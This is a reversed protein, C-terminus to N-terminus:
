KVPKWVACGRSTFQGDSSAITVTIVRASTAFSNDVIEGSESTREWYCDEMSGAARYTGPPITQVDEDGELQAATPSKSSVLFTGNGFWREYDGSVAETLTKSWKPCLKPVGAQLVDKGDGDFNGSEALWQPRSAGGASSDPLSDCIDAVFESASEYLDDVVWGEEDALRDIDGEPGAPYVPEEVSEEPDPSATVSPSSSAKAGVDGEGGGGCGALVVAAVGAAVVGVGRMMNM